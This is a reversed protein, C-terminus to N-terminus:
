VIEIGTERISDNLKWRIIYKGPPLPKGNDDKGDWVFSYYDTSRIREIDQNPDSVMSFNKESLKMIYSKGDNSLLEIPLLGAAKVQTCIVMKEGNDKKLVSPATVIMSIDKSPYVNIQPLEPNNKVYKREYGTKNPLIFNKFYERNIRAYLNVAKEHQRRCLEKITDYFDALSDWLAGEGPRGEPGKFEPNDLSKNWMWLNTNLICRIDRESFVVGTHYAEVFMDVESKQYGAKPHVNVWHKPLNSENLDWPGFPEWYNWVYRDEDPYYRMIRKYNAFIKEAKDFYRSDGLIRYLRLCLVGMKATKNLAESRDIRAGTVIEKDMDSMHMWKGTRKVTWMTNGAYHGYIGDERWCGRIDYKEVIHEALKIYEHAKEGYREKLGTEKLVFEAFRLMPNILIADGVIASGTLEGSYINPGVWGKYGDPDVSMKGIIWDFQEVAKDLWEPNNYLLYGKLFGDLYQCAYWAFKEGSAEHVEPVDLVFERFAGANDLGTENKKFNPKETDNM